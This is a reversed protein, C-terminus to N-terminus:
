SINGMGSLVMVSQIARIRCSCTSSFATMFFSLSRYLARASHAFVGRTEKQLSHPEAFLQHSRDGFVPLVVFKRFTLLLPLTLLLLAFLAYPTAKPEEWPLCLLGFRIFDSRISLLLLPGERFPLYAGQYPRGSAEQMASVSRLETSHSNGDCDSRM